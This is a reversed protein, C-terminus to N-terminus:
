DSLSCVPPDFALKVEANDWDTLSSSRLITINTMTTYTLYYYGDDWVAFPDAGVENLVPNMFTGSASVNQASVSSLLGTLVALFGIAVMKIICTSPHSIVWHQLLSVVTLALIGTARVEVM